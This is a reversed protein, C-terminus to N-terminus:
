AMELSMITNCKRCKGEMLVNKREKDRQKKSVTKIWTPLILHCIVTM